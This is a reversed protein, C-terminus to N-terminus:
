AATYVRKSQTFTIAPTKFFLFNPTMTFSVALDKYGTGQTVTPTGFSSVGMGFTGAQIKARIADNSPAPYITAFRAGEGLANQMGAMANIMVGIQFIGYILLLLVPLALAMEVAAVGRSDRLLTM